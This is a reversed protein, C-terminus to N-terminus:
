VRGEASTSVDHALRGRGRVLRRRAAEAGGLVLRRLLLRRLVLGRPAEARGLGRGGATEAGRLARRRAPGARGRRRGRRLGRGRLARAVAGRLLRVAVRLRRGAVRLLGTVAVGVLLGAVTIRLPRGDGRLRLGRLAAAAHAQDGLHPDDDRRDRGD